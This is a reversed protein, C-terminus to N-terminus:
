KRGKCVHRNPYITQHGCICKWKQMNRWLGCKVWKNKKKEPKCELKAFLQIVRAELEEWGELEVEELIEPDLEICSPLTSGPLAKVIGIPCFFGGRKVM